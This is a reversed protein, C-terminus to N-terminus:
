ACILANNKAPYSRLSITRTDSELSSSVLSINQHFQRFLADHLRITWDFVDVPSEIVAAKSVANLDLRDGNSHM